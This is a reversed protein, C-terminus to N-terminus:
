PFNLGKHKYVNMQEGTLSYSNIRSQRFDSVYIKEGGKNFSVYEPMLFLDQGQSNTQITRLVTGQSNLIKVSPSRISTVFLKNRYSTIGHCGDEVPLQKTISLNRDFTLFSLNTDCTVVLTNADTCTLDSRQDDLQLCSTITGTHLDVLKSFM